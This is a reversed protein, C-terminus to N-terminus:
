IGPGNVVGEKRLYKELITVASEDATCNFLYVPCDQLLTLIENMAMRRSDASWGNIVMQQMLCAAAKVPSLREIHNDTGKQLVVICGLECVKDSIVPESGDFPYGYTLWIHKNKRILTRDNCIIEAGRVSQWLKAQTTKGTGSPATFVIGRGSYLIQAAHMFLVNKYLLMQRIPLMRLIQYIKDQAAEFPDTHIVCRVFSFDPLYKTQAVPGKPGGNLECYLYQGDKYYTLLMDAGIPSVQLVDAEAWNWSIQVTIDAPVSLNTCFPAFSETIELECESEIRIILGVLHININFINGEQM